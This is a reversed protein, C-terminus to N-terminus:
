GLDVGHELGSAREQVIDLEPRMLCVPQRDQQSAAVELREAQRQGYILEGDYRVAKVQLRQERKQAVITPEVHQGEALVLDPEEFAAPLGYAFNVQTVDGLAQAIDDAVVPVLRRELEM